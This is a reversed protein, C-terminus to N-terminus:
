LTGFLQFGFLRHNLKALLGIAHLPELGHRQLAHLAVGGAGDGGVGLMHRCAASKVGAVERPACMLSMPMGLVQVSRESFMRRRM